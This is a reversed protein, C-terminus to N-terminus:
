SRKSFYGPGPNPELLQTGDGVRTQPACGLIPVLTLRPGLPSSGLSKLSIPQPQSILPQFSPQLSTPAGKEKALSVPGGGGSRGQDGGRPTEEQAM